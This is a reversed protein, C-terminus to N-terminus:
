DEEHKEVLRIANNYDPVEDVFAPCYAKFARCLNRLGDVLEVKAAHEEECAKGIVRLWGVMEQPEM